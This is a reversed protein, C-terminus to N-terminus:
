KRLEYIKKAKKVIMEVQKVDEKVKQNIKSRLLDKTKELKQMEMATVYM